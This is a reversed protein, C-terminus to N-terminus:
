KNKLNVGRIMFGTDIDTRGDMWLPKESKLKKTHLYLDIVLVWTVQDLTLIVSARFNCFHGIEFNTEEALICSHM